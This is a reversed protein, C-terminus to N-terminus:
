MDYMLYEFDIEVMDAYEEGAEQMDEDNSLSHWKVLIDKGEEKIEELVLLVDLIMKSSATNFYILKFDFITKDLPASKYEELWDLLPEYFAVVDEPLSKGSIEFKDNDKDLIVFPCDDTPEIRLAEM